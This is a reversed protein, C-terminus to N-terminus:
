RGQDGIAEGNHQHNREHTRECEVGDMKDRRLRHEYAIRMCRAILGGPLRSEGASVRESRHLIKPQLTCHRNAESVYLIVEHSKLDELTMNRDVAVQTRQM